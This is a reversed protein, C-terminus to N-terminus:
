SAQNRLKAIWAIGKLKEKTVMAEIEKWDPEWTLFEDRLDWSDFMTASSWYYNDGKDHHQLYWAIRKAAAQRTGHQPEREGWSGGFMWAWTVHGEHSTESIFVRRTYDYWDERAECMGKIGFLPGHGAACASTGCEHESESPFLLGRETKSDPVDTVCFGNGKILYQSMKFGHAGVKEHLARLGLALLALNQIRKPPRKTQM